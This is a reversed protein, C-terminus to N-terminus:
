DENRLAASDEDARIKDPNEDLGAYNFALSLDQPKASHKPGTTKRSLIQSIEV